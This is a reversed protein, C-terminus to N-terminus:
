TKTCNCIGYYYNVPQYACSDNSGTLFNKLANFVLCVTDSPHNQDDNEMNSAIAITANLAPHFSLLSDYGYTAGIHGYARGAFGPQGTMDSLNFTAFGYFRDTPIMIDVYEKPLVSYKPGYVEYAMQAADVTTSVFDSACWGGFVGHVKSVDFGPLATPSHNNYSTRDYGHMRSVSDPAGARVFGVSPLSDLLDPPFFSSQSYTDWSTANTLNALVLGLLVFNTSSYDQYTGPTWLLKGTHVWNLGLLEPPEFDHSPHDFVFQRFSDVSKNPPNAPKATDFDPIGSRMSALEYITVNNAEPGFLDECSSYNLSPNMEKMRRLQPDVFKHMKDDLKLNGKQIQRLIAVGTTVKTISGWIFVDDAETTPADKSMSVTGITETININHTPAFVSVSLSCNYKNGEYQLIKQLTDAFDGAQTAPINCLCLTACVWIIVSTQM